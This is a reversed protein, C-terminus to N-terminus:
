ISKTKDKNPHQEDSNSLVLRDYRTSHSQGRDVHRCTCHFIRRWDFFIWNCRDELTWPVCIDIEVESIMCLCWSSWLLFCWHFRCFKRGFCCNIGLRRRSQNQVFHQMSKSGTGSKQFCHRTWVYLMRSVRCALWGLHEQISCSGGTLTGFPTCGPHKLESAPWRCNGSQRRLNGLNCEHTKSFSPNELPVLCLYTKDESRTQWHGHLRTHWSYLRSQNRCFYEEYPCDSQVLHLSSNWHLFISRLYSRNRRCMCGRKESCRMSSNWLETRAQFNKFM